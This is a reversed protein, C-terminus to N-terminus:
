LKVVECEAIRVPVAGSMSVVGNQEKVSGATVGM